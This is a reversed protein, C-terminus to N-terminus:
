FGEIGFSSRIARANPSIPGDTMAPAAVVKKPMMGRANALLKMKRTKKLSNMRMMENPTLFAALRRHKNAPKTSKKGETIDQKLVEKHIVHASFLIDPM